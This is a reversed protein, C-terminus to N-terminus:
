IQHPTLLNKTMDGKASRIITLMLIQAITTKGAGNVGHIVTIRDDFDFSFEGKWTKIDRIELKHIRRLM